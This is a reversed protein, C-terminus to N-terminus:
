RNNIKTKRITKKPNGQKIINIEKKFKNQEQEIDELTKDGGSHINKFSNMMGKYENFNIPENSGKYYYILDNFDVPEISKKLKQYNILLIIIINM